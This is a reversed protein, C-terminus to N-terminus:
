SGASILRSGFYQCVKAAATPVAAATAANQHFGGNQVWSAIEADPTVGTDPTNQQAAAKADGSFYVTSVIIKNTSNGAIAVQARAWNLLDTNTCTSTKNNPACSPATASTGWVGNTKAVFGGYGVTSYNAGGNTGQAPDVSPLEDTILVIHNTAGQYATGSFINIAAYLAAAVNSGRCSPTANQKPNFAQTCFPVIANGTTANGVTMATTLKASLSAFSSGVSTLPTLFSSSNTAANVPVTLAFPMIGFQSNASGYGHLCNLIALDASLQPTLDPHGTGSNFTLEVDNLVLVNVTTNVVGNVPPNAGISGAQTPLSAISTKTIALTPVGFFGGLVTSLAVSSTVQVATPAAGSPTNSLSKNVANYTGAVVTVNNATLSTANAQAITQAYTQMTAASSGGSNAAQTAAAIAALQTAYNIQSAQSLARVADLGLLGVAIMAPILAAILITMGARRDQRLTPYSGVDGHAPPPNRTCSATM